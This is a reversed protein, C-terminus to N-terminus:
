RRLLRRHRSHLCCSRDFIHRSLRRWVHTNNACRLHRTTQRRICSHLSSCPEITLFVAGWQEWAAHLHKHFVPDLREQKGQRRHRMFALPKWMDELLTADMYVMMLCHVLLGLLREYGEYTSKGHLVLQLREAGDLRKDTPIVVIAFAVFIHIGLGKIAVGM